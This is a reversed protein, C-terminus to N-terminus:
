QVVCDKVVQQKQTHQREEKGYERLINPSSQLMGGFEDYTSHLISETALSSDLQAQLTASEGSYGLVEGIAQLEEDNRRATNQVEKSGICRKGLAEVMTVLTQNREEEKARASGQVKWSM